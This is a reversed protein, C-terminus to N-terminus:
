QDLLVCRGTVHHHDERVGFDTCSGSITSVVAMEMLMDLLPLYKSLLIRSNSPARLSHSRRTNCNSAEKGNMM